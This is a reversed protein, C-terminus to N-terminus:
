QAVGAGDYVVVYPDLVVNNVTRSSKLGLLDGQALSIWFSSDEEVIPNFWASFLSAQDAVSLWQPANNIDELDYGAPVIFIAGGLIQLINNVTATSAGLGLGTANLNPNDVAQILGNIDNLTLDGGVRMESIIAEACGVAQAPTINANGAQLDLTVLLYAALGSVTRAVVTGDLVPLTPTEVVRLYRPGQPAPDVVPNAQSRNPWMDKVILQGNSIATDRICIVPSAM